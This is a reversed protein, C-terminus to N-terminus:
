IPVKNRSLATAVLDAHLIWGKEWCIATFHVGIFPCKM